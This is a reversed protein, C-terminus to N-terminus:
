INYQINNCIRTKFVYYISKHKLANLFPSNEFMNGFNKSNTHSYVLVLM